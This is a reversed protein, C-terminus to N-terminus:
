RAELTARRKRLKMAALAARVTRMNFAAREEPSKFLRKMNFAARQEPSMRKLLRQLGQALYEKREKPTMRKAAEAWDRMFEKELARLKREKTAPKMTKDDILANLRRRHEAKIEEDTGKKKKM